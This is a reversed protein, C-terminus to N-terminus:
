LTGQYVMKVIIDMLLAFLLMDLFVFIMSVVISDIKFFLLYIFIIMKSMRIKGGGKKWLNPVITVRFCNDTGASALLNGACNFSLSTIAFNNVKGLKLM